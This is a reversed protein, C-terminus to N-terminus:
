SQAYPSWEADAFLADTDYGPQPVYPETEQTGLMTALADAAEQATVKGASLVSGTQLPWRINEWDPEVCPQYGMNEENRQPPIIRPPVLAM